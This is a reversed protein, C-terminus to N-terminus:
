CNNLGFPNVGTGRLTVDTITVASRLGIGLYTSAPESGDFFRDSLGYNVITDQGSNLLGMFDVDTGNESFTVRRLNPLHSRLIKIGSYNPSANATVWGVGASYSTNFVAPNETTVIGSWYASHSAVTFDFHYCWETCSECADPSGKGLHAANTMGTIGMAAIWSRLVTQAIIAEAVTDVANYINDLDGQTFSGDDEINDVILCLLNVWVTDNFAAIFAANGVAIIATAIAFIAPVIWGIPGTLPGFVAETVGTLFAAIEEVTSGEEVVDVFGEKFHQVISDAYACKANDSDTPPNPPTQSISNRPDFRPADVWTAGGDTSQQYHGNEDVRTMPIEAQGCCDMCVEMFAAMIENVQQRADRIQDEDGVWTDPQDLAIMVGLIHSVWQDNVELCFLPEENWAATPIPTPQIRPAYRPVSLKQIIESQDTM